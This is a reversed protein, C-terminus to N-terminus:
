RSRGTLGIAVIHRQSGPRQPPGSAGPSELPEGGDTLSVKRVARCGHSATSLPRVNYMAKGGCINGSPELSASIARKSAASSFNFHWFTM